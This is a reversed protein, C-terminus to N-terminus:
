AEVGNHFEAASRVTLTRMFRTAVRSPALGRCSAGNAHNWWRMAMGILGTFGSVAGNCLMRAVCLLAKARRNSQEM